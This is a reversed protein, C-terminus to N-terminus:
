ENKKFWAFRTEIEGKVPFPADKLGTTQDPNLQWIGNVLAGAACLWLLTLGLLEGATTDVQYYQYSANAASLIVLVVGSAAAGLRKEVNNITNWVDGVTLHLLFSLTAVNLFDGTSDVILASTYARIPGIILIWMIPFIVGPPFWSPRVIEMGTPSGVKPRENSLPNLVRSKLSCAYFFLGSLWLPPQFGTAEAGKDFTALLIAFGAMQVLGAVGYKVLADVDVEYDQDDAAMSFLQTRMAQAPRTFQTPCPKSLPLHSRRGPILDASISVTQFAETCHQLVSVAVAFYATVRM